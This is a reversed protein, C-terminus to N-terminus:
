CDLKSALGSLQLLMPLYMDREIRLAVYRSLVGDSAPFTLNHKTPNYTHSLHFKKFFYKDFYSRTTTCWPYSLLINM